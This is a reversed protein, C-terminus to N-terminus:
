CRIVILNKVSAHIKCGILHKVVFSIRIQAVFTTAILIWERTSRNQIQEFEKHTNGITHVVVIVNQQVVM